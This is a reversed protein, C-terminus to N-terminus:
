RRMSRLRELGNFLASMRGRAYAVGEYLRYIAWACRGHTTELKLYNDPRVAM